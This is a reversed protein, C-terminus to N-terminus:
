ILRIQSFYPYNKSTTPTDVGGGACQKQRLIQASYLRMWFIWCARLVAKKDKQAFSKQRSIFTEIYINMNEIHAHRFIRGERIELRKV